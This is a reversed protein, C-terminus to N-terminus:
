GPEGPRTTPDRSPCTVWPTPATSPTMSRAGAPTPRMSPTAANTVPVVLQPGPITSMEPDVGSTEVTFAPGDPVLYGIEELFAKYAEADHPSGARERHWADIASQLEERRALLDANRPGFEAVLAALGAFFADPDVGSGPLAEDVVFAHLDPAWALGHTEIRQDTM